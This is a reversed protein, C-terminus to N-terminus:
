SRTRLWELVKVLKLTATQKSSDLNNSRRSIQIAPKGLFSGASMGEGLPKNDSRKLDHRVFHPYVDAYPYQFGIKFGVWTEPQDYPHGLEIGDLVVNAGGEGDEEATLSSDPFARELEELARRVAPTYSGVIAM